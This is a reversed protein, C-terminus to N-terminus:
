EEEELLATPPYIMLDKYGEATTIIKIGKITRVNVIHKFNWSTILDCGALIAAAIHQCDEYSKQKLVGFNIIKEALEITKESTDIVTYQIEQLHQGFLIQKEENCAALEELVIDSIYVDYKGRKLLDWLQRTELMKEPADTQDLYSIVSTDLYVKLKNHFQIINTEVM